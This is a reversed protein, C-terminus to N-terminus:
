LNAEHLITIADKILDVCSKRGPQRLDRCNVQGENAAAFRNVLASVRAYQGKKDAPGAYTKDACVIALASAAGCINGTSGVGTGLGATVTELAPNFVMAVCQSCNYGEARLQLAKTIREELTVM